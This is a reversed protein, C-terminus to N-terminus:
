QTQNRGRGLLEVKGQLVRFISVGQTKPKLWQRDMQPIKQKPLRFKRRQNSKAQNNPSLIEGANELLRESFRPNATSNTPM